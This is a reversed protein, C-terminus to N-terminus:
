EGLERITQSWSYKDRKAGNYTEPHTQSEILYSPVMEPDPYDPENTRSNSPSSFYDELTKNSELVSERINLAELNINSSTEPQSVPGDECTVEETAEIEVEEAVPPPVCERDDILEHCNEPVSTYVNGSNCKRLIRLVLEEAIGPPFGVSDADSEDRIM